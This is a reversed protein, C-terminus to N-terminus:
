IGPIKQLDDSHNKQLVDILMKDTNHNQDDWEVEIYQDDSNASRIQLQWDDQSRIVVANSLFAGWYSFTSSKSLVIVKSKSMLLIDLIDPKEEAMFVQPLDFIEKIEHMRADTFVTVPWDVGITKRILRIANIFYSTPTLPSGFKFDGRRIHVSIVPVPYQQMRKKISPLILNDLETKILKHHDRILGFLDEDISTKDFIYLSPPTKGHTNKHTLSPNYKKKVFWSFINTSILQWFPTEKFYGWYFRKKPENRLIPGIRLGYWLSCIFPLNNLRAFVLGRAWILMLNGLGTRSFKAYVKPM